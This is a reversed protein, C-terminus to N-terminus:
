KEAKEKTDKGVFTIVGNDIGVVGNEIIEGCMTLVTGGKIVLDAM